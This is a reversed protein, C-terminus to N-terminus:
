EGDRSSRDRESRDGDSRDGDSRDSQPREPAVFPAKGFPNTQTAAYLGDMARGFDRNAVGIGDMADMRRNFDRRLSSSDFMVTAGDMNWADRNRRLLGVVAKADDAANRMTRCYRGVEGSVAEERRAWDADFQFRTQESTKMAAIQTRAEAARKAPADCFVELAGSLQEVRDRTASLTEDEEFTRTDILPEGVRAATKFTEMDARLATWYATEIKPGQTAPSAAVTGVLVVALLAGAISAVACVAMLHAYYRLPSQGQKDKTFVFWILALLLGVLIASLLTQGLIAATAFGMNAGGDGPHALANLAVGKGGQCGSPFAFLAVIIMGIVMPLPWRSAAKANQEDAM